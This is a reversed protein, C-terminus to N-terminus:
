WQKESADGQELPEEEEEEEASLHGPNTDPHDGKWQEYAALTLANEREINPARSELQGAIHTSIREMNMERDPNSKRHKLIEGLAVFTVEVDLSRMWPVEVKDLPVEPEHEMKDLDYVYAIRETFDYVRRINQGPEGELHFRLSKKDILVGPTETGAYIRTAMELYDIPPAPEAPPPSPVQSRAPAVGTFSVIGSPTDDVKYEKFKSGVGSASVHVINSEPITTDKIATADSFEMPERATRVLGRQSPLNKVNAKGGKDEKKLAVNKLMKTYSDEGIQPLTSGAAVTPVAKKASFCRRVHHAKGCVFCKGKRCRQTRGHFTNCFACLDWQQAKYQIISRQTQAIKWFDRISKNKLSTGRALRSSLIVFELKRARTHAVDMRESEATFGPRTTRPNSYIVIDAESGISSDVTRFSVLRRDWEASVLQCVHSKLLQIQQYYPSLVMISMLQGETEGTPLRSCLRNAFISAILERVFVAHVKNEYSTGVLTEKAHEIDFVLRNGDVDPKLNKLYSNIRDMEPSGDPLNDLLPRSSSDYRINGEIIDHKEESFTSLDPLAGLPLEPIKIKEPKDNGEPEPEAPAPDEHEYDQLM